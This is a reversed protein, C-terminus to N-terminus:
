IKWSPTFYGLMRAITKKGNQVNSLHQPTFGCKEAIKNQNIQYKSELFNIMQKFRQNPMAHIKLKKASIIM